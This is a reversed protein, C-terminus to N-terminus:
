VVSKRDENPDEEITSADIDMLGPLPTTVEEETVEKVEERSFLNESVEMVPEEIVEEKIEPEIATQLEKVKKSM